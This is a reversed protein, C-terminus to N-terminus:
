NIETVFCPTHTLHTILNSASIGAKIVLFPLNMEECFNRIATTKGGGPPGYLLAHMPTREFCDPYLLYKKLDDLCRKISQPTVLKYNLFANTKLFKPLIIQTHPYIQSFDGELNVRIKDLADEMKEDTVLAMKDLNSAIAVL